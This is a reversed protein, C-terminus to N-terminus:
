RWSSRPYLASSAPRREGRERQRHEEDGHERALPRSPPPWCAQDPRAEPDEAQANEGQDREDRVRIRAKGEHDGQHEASRAHAKQDRLEVVVRQGRDRLLLDSLGRADIRRDRGEAQGNAQREDARDQECGERDREGVLGVRALDQRRGFLLLDGLHQLVVGLHHAVRSQRVVRRLRRFDLVLDQPDVVLRTWLGKLDSQHYRQQHADNSEEPPELHHPKGIGHRRVRCLRTRGM